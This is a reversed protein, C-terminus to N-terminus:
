PTKIRGGPVNATATDVRLGHDMSASPLPAPASPHFGHGWTLPVPMRSPGDLCPEAPLPMSTPCLSLGQVVPSSGPASAGVAPPRVDVSSPRMPSTDALAIFNGLVSLCTGIDKIAAMVATHDRISSNM